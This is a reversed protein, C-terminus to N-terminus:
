GADEERLQKQLHHPSASSAQPCFDRQEGDIVPYERLKGGYQVVAIGGRKCANSKHLIEGTKYCKFLGYARNFVSNKKFSQTIYGHRM